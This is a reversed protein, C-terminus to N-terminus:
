DSLTIAHLVSEATVVFRKAGDSKGRKIKETKRQNLEPSM